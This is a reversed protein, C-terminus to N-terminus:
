VQINEIDICTNLGGDAKIVEGTIFSAEDSALFRIASAIEEPEARRRLPTAQELKTFNKRDEETVSERATRVKRGPVLSNVRVGSPGLEAALTRTLGILGAKTTVGHAKGRRGQLAMLGLVNVISGSGQERMDEYAAQSLLFASRLNVDQVYQWQELTMEDFPVRPRIAANNVLVDIRGLDGRVGAVIDAIDDPEGLDGLTISAESGAAEVADATEQCGERDSRATIGVDAGAEALAVAVARGINKSSGTVLATKGELGPYVVTRDSSAM